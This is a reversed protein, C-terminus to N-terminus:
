LCCDATLEVGQGVIGYEEGAVAWFGCNAAFLARIRKDAFPCSEIIGLSRSRVSGGPTTYLGTKQPVPTEGAMSLAKAHTVINPKGERPRGGHWKGFKGGM